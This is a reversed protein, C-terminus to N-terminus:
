DAIFSAVRLLISSRHGALCAPMIVMINVLRFETYAVVEVDGRSSNCVRDSHKSRKITVTRDLPESERIYCGHISSPVRSLPIVM